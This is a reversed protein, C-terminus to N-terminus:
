VSSRLLHSHLSPLTAAVAMMTSLDVIRLVAAYLWVMSPLLDPGKWCFLVVVARCGLLIVAFEVGNNFDDVFM